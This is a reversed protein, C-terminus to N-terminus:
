RVVLKKQAMGNEAMVSVLYIGSDVDQLELYLEDTDTTLEKVVRGSVDQIMVSLIGDSVITIRDSAPNPFMNVEIEMQELAAISVPVTVTDEPGPVFSQMMDHLPKDLVNYPAVGEYTYNYAVYYGAPFTPTSIDSFFLGSTNGVDGSHGYYDDGDIDYYELGYGYDWSSPAIAQMKALSTANILQETRLAHFFINLEEPTASIDAWGLYLTADVITFDIMPPLEWYCGMHPGQLEDTAPVSTNDLSLVDIINSQIYAAATVGTVERIIMALISYNTNSYGWAFDPPFNEGQGAGCFIAEELTFTRTLDAMAAMRCSDNDALNAIGSTHNLLHRIKVPESSDITDNVLTSRLHLAIDDEVTLMGDEELMLIATAMFMKTISGVRFQSNPVADVAPSGSTFGSIAKGTAGSWEWQDPVYVSVVLGPNFVNGPLAATVLSDLSMSLSAPPTQAVANIFGCVAIGLIIATRNM